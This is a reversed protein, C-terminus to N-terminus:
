LQMVMGAIEELSDATGYLATTIEGFLEVTRAPLGACMYDDGDICEQLAVLACACARIKCYSDTLSDAVELNERRTGTENVDNM